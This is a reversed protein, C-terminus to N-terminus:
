RVDFTPAASLLLKGDARSIVYVARGSYDKGEIRIKLTVDVAVRNADWEEARLAETVWSSPKRVVLNQAFKRLNGLDVFQNVAASGGQLVAADFKQLFARIDDPIKVSNSGREAKLAGDRAALTTAADLDAAAAFRFHKAAVDFKNQRLALEALGLHALGYGQIPLPEAKLAENFIKEAEDTKNQALLARGLLAQLTPANATAALGKRAEAEAKAFDNKSFALNAQGFAESQSPRPPFADNSYNSQLYIKDPDVEITKIEAGAPFNVSGYEGTKVTVTKPIKEGKDTTAVIEVTFDGSSNTTVVKNTDDFSGFNAITSEVGNATNQPKGIAFDPLTVTDIWNNFLENVRKRDAGASILNERFNSCRSLQCLPHPRPAGSTQQNQQPAFWGALSLSDVRGRSLSSRLATELTKEGFTKEIMRWILAGKNYVSTAYNRDLQSQTLLPLDNRAITAYARRFREFAADRQAPDFRGGMYQAVLYIPLADRLIGAGRGRLLVQGDIWARAAAVSLLEITGLDVADRRFVNEDITVAGVMSASTERSASFSDSTETNLAQTSIVRFPEVAGVNFYKSYFAVAREAEVAVREAQQKGIEGSGRPYYVEVQTGSGNRSIVDYDGIIFFPQAALSQEFSNESKRVGSSIVKLGASGPARAPATVTLSFPATDAGHDAYPTHTVPVWFSSPLLFTEGSSVHMAAGRDASPISYTFEVELEPLRVIASTMEIYVRMLNNRTDEATKPQAAAGNIKMSEVKAKPALFFSLRPKNDPSLLMREGLDPDSLNVLSLKTQLDVKQEEPVVRANIEYKKIEFEQAYAISSLQLIFISCFFLKKMM